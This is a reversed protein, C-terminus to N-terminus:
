SEIDDGESCFNFANIVSGIHEVLVVLTLQLVGEM